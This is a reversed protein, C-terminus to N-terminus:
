CPHRSLSKKVLASSQMGMLKNVSSSQLSIGDQIQELSNSGSPWQTATTTSLLRHVRPPGGRFEKHVATATGWGTGSVYRNAWIPSDGARQIWVAMANGFGDISIQPDGAFGANDDSEIPEATDWTNTSAVYRNAFITSLSGVWQKWVVLANGDSDSAIKPDIADHNSGDIEEATGWTNSSAVYRNAIIDRAENISNIQEWVALANGNAEIAIQPSYANGAGAGDYEISEGNGWTDTNTVYRNAGIKKQHHESWV